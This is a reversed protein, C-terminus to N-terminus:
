EAESEEDSILIGMQHATMTKLGSHPQKILKLALKDAWGTWRQIMDNYIDPAWERSQEQIEYFRDMIKDLVERIALKQAAAIAFEQELTMKVDIDKSEEYLEFGSEEWKSHWTDWYEPTLINGFLQEHRLIHRCPLQWKRFFLCHCSPNDDLELYLTEEEIDQTLKLEELILKQVPYPFRKLIPYGCFDTIYHSRFEMQCNKAREFWQNYTELVRDIIGCLSWSSMNRSGGNKLSHHWSELANTTRIQLLLSSHQRAYM